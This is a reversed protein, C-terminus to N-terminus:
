EGDKSYYEKVPRSILNNVDKWIAEQREEINKIKQTIGLIEYNINKLLQLIEQQPDVKIRPVETSQLKEQEM